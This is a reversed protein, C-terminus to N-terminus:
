TNRGVLSAALERLPAVADDSCRTQKLHGLARHYYDAARAEAYPRAGVQDLIELASLIGVEDLPGPQCYLEALRLAEQVNQTQNLAYVAPLAKKKDRIDTAASKGTLSEEGWVGLIDDEIQFALGLDEAFRRFHEIQASDDTALLAGMQASAALLAGTKRQIMELYQNEDVDLLEEFTMDLYQGECLALCAQDLVWRASQQRLPRVGRDALRHLAMQALVFLGDGVNIGHATGWIDWVARRGRRSRSKDQIDDHVLSFNHILELAAAAPLAQQPDGGAAQTALLCLIPRLRKGSKAQVPQCNEDIWGLHYRMIDYYPACCRHPACVIDQLEKEILPLFRDLAEQLTM